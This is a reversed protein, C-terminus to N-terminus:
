LRATFQNWLGSELSKPDKTKWPLARLPFALRLDNFTPNESLRPILCTIIQSVALISTIRCLKAPLSEFFTESICFHRGKPANEGIPMKCLRDKENM